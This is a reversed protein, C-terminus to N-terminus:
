SPTAGVALGERGGPSHCVSSTIKWAGRNSSFMIRLGDASLWLTDEDAASNLATLDVAAGFPDM